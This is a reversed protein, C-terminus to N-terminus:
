YTYCYAKDTVLVIFSNRLSAYEKLAKENTRSLRKYTFVKNKYGIIPETQSLETLGAVDNPDETIIVEKYKKAYVEYRKSGQEERGSDYIVKKIAYKGITHIAKENKYVYKYVGNEVSQIECDIVDGNHKYIHDAISNLSLAIFSLSLIAKKM